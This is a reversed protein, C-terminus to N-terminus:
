ELASCPLAPASSALISQPIIVGSTPFRQSVATREVAAPQDLRGMVNRILGRGVAADSEIAYDSRGRKRWQESQDWEMPLHIVSGAFRKVHNMKGSVAM